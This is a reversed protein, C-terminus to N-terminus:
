AASKRWFYEKVRMHTDRSYNQGHVCQEGRQGVRGAPPQHAQQGLPGARDAHEGLEGPRPLRLGGLVQLGQLARPDDGGLAGALAPDVRQPGSGQPLQRGRQAPEGVGRVPETARLLGEVAVPEADLRLPQGGVAGAPGVSARELEVPRQRAPGLHDPAM